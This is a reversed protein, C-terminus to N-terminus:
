AIRRLSRSTQEIGAAQELAAIREELEIENTIAVSTKALTAIASAQSPELRGEWVAAIAARLMAPLDSPEIERGVAAWQRAARAQTSKARGGKRQGAKHRTRYDPHHAFCLDADPVARAQCPQGDARTASCRREVM